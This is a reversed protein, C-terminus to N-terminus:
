GGSALYGANYFDGAILLRDIEYQTESYGAEAEPEAEPECTDCIDAEAHIIGGGCEDCVATSSFQAEYM